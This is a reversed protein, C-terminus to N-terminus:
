KINNKQVGTFIPALHLYETISFKALAMEGALIWASIFRIALYLLQLVIFKALNLTM